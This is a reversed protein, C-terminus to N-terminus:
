RLVKDQLDQEVKKKEKVLVSHKITLDNKESDLAKLKENASALGIKTENLLLHLEEVKRKNQETIEQKDNNM